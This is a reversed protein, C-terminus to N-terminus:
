VSGKAWGEGPQDALLYATCVRIAEALDANSLQGLAPGFLRGLVTDLTTASSLALPVLQKVWDLNRSEPSVWCATM